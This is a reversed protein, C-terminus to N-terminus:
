TLDKDFRLCSFDRLWSSQFLRKMEVKEFYFGGGGGGWSRQSKGRELVDAEAWNIIQIPDSSSNSNEYAFFRQRKSIFRLITRDSKHKLGTVIKQDSM